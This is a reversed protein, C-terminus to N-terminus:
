YDHAPPKPAAGFVLGATGFVLLVPGYPSRLLPNEGAAAVMEPNGTLVAVFLGFVLMMGVVMAIISLCGGIVAAPGVAASVPVTIVHWKGDLGLSVLKEHVALTVGAFVAGLMLSSVAFMSLVLPPEGQRVAVGVGIGLTALATIACAVLGADVREPDAPERGRSDHSM